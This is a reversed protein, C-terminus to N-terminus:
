HLLATKKFVKVQEKYFEQRDMAIATKLDNLKYTTVLESM